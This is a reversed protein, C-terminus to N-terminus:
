KKKKSKDTGYSSSHTQTAEALIGRVDNAFLGKPDLDLYKQYADACGPPLIMKGTASDITAKQILGQGKLYYAIALTPDIAIAKDAAAVSADGNGLNSFIVAENKYYGAAGIPFAKAASDYAADSEPIKGTRAYIEGLASYAMGQNSPLPKKAADVELGKKLNTEADAYKQTDGKVNAINVQAQGLLIWLIAADPKAATDKLMLTEIEAYKAAKIEATKAEIDTKSAGAGLAQAAATSAADADKNDQNVIGIDANLNKILANNKLAAANKRQFEVLQRRQDVSMGDIYEKRSMDDDAQNDKGMTVKINDIHDTEKDKPTGPVRFVIKYTGVPVEGTYNGNADLTFVGEDSTITKEGMGAAGQDISVFTVTGSVEPAGTPNTVHGHVKAKPVASLAPLLAFALLGLGLTLNRKM